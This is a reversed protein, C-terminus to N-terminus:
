TIVLLCCKSFNDLMAAMWFASASGVIYFGLSSVVAFPGTSLLKRDFLLNKVHNYATLTTFKVSRYYYCYIIKNLFLFM